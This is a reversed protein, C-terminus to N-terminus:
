YCCQSRKLKKTSLRKLTAAALRKLDPTTDHKVTLEKIAIGGKLSIVVRNNENKALCYLAHVALKRQTYTDEKIVQLLIPIGGAQAILSINNKNHISLTAIAALAQNKQPTTGVRILYLLLPISGRQGVLGRNDEHTALRHLACAAIEKETENGHRVLIVMHDISDTVTISKSKTENDIISMALASAAAITHMSICPSKKYQFSSTSKQSQVRRMPIAESSKQNIKPISARQTIFGKDNKHAGLRHLAGTANEKEIENGHQFPAMHHVCDPVNTLQRNKENSINSMALTSEVAINQLSIRPSVCVKNNKQEIDHGAEEKITTMYPQFARTSKQKRVRRPPSVMSKIKNTCTQANQALLDAIARNPILDDVSMPCRTQPSYRHKSLWTTIADKEYTYGDPGIVPTEITVLTIPCEFPSRM